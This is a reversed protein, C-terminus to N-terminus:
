MPYILSFQWGLQYDQECFTLDTLHECAPPGRSVAPTKLIQEPTRLIQSNNVHSFILNGTKDQECFSLDPTRM